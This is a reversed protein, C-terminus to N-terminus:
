EPTWESPFLSEKMGVLSIGFLGLSLVGFTIDPVTGNRFFSVAGYLCCLGIALYVLAGGIRLWISSRECDIEANQDTAVEAIVPEGDDAAVPCKPCLGVASPLDAGCTECRAAVASADAM